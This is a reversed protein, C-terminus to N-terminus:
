GEVVRTGLPEGNCARLLVHPEAMSLV